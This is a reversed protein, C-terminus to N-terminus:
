VGEEHAEDLKKSLQTMLHELEAYKHTEEWAVHDSIMRKLVLFERETRVVFSKADDGDTWPSSVWSAQWSLVDAVQTKLALMDDSIAHVVDYIRERGTEHSHNVADNVQDTAAKTKKGQVWLGILAVVISGGSILVTAALAWAGSNDTATTQALTLTYPLPNM